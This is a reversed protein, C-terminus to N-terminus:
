GWGVGTSVEGRRLRNVLLHAQRTPEPMRYKTVAQLALRRADDLTMLHGPSIYMPKVRYRTRLAYGIHEGQHTMPSASGKTPAPDAFDGVLVSKGCGLSPTETLLGLHTAIGLRRPHAIGHGDAFLVDPRRQLQDWALMLGPIERFSLLGPLYPFRMEDRVGSWGVVQLTAAELLVIAAWLEKGGIEYSLDVGGLLTPEQPLPTLQVHQRLDQQLAVADAPSLNWPHRLNSM